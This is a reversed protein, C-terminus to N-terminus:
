RCKTIAVGGFGQFTKCKQKKSNRIEEAIERQSEMDGRHRAEEQDIKWGVLKENKFTFRWLDQQFDYLLVYKGDELESSRPEGWESQFDALPTGAKILSKLTEVRKERAAEAIRQQEQDEKHSPLLACGSTMIILCLWVIYKM